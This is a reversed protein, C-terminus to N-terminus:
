KIEITSIVPFHDSPYINNYTNTVKLSTYSTTFNKSVFIHDIPKNHYRKTGNKGRLTSGISDVTLDKMLTRTYPYLTESTCNFDGCVIFFSDKAIEQILQVMIKIQNKRVFNFLADLHVNFVFFAQNTNMDKLHTYNMIRPFQSLFVKSGKKEPTNSLWLTNTELLEYKNKLFFINNAEDSWSCSRFEGVMQYTEQLSDLYPIMTKTLEQTCIIDPTYQNVLSHIANIRTSFPLYSPLLLKDTLLNLSMMKMKSKKM